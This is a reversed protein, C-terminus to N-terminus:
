QRRELCGIARYIESGVAAFVKGSYLASAQEPVGLPIANLIQPGRGVMAEGESSDLEVQSQSLPLAGARFNEQTNGHRMCANERRM